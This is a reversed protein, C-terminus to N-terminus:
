RDGGLSQLYRARLALARDVEARLRNGEHGGRHHFGHTLITRGEGHFFYLLRDNQRTKFEWIGDRLLRSKQQNRVPGSNAHLELLRTMSRHSPQRLRVLEEMFTWAPSDGGGAGEALDIAYVTAAAGRLILKLRM